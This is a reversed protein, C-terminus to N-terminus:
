SRVGDDGDNTLPPPITTARRAAWGLAGPDIAGPRLVEIDGDAVVRVVASAAAPRPGGDIVLVDSLQAAVEDATTPTPLGHRNASTAAVPGVAATIRRVLEDDACRVGITDDGAGVRRGVQARAPVVLTLAGPWFRAALATAAPSPEAILDLESPQGILVALPQDAPRQKLEFIRAIAAPRDLPAMVGYVTDTPVVVPQDGAFAELVLELAPEIDDPSALCHRTM